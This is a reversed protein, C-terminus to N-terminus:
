SLRVSRLIRRVDGESPGEAAHPGGEAVNLVFVCVKAGDRLAVASVTAKPAYCANASKPTVEVSLRVADDDGSEVRPEGIEPPAGNVTYGGAAIRNVLETAVQEPDDDVVSGAMAQAQIMSRGQCEFPRSVYTTNLRIRGSAGGGGSEWSPPLEYAVGTQDDDVPQWDPEPAASSASTPTPAARDDGANLLVFTTVGGGILVVATALAIWLPARSPRKPPQQQYVGLGSYSM